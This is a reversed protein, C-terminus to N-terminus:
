TVNFFSLLYTVWCALNLPDRLDMVHFLDLLISPSIAAARKVRHNKIRALGKMLLKYEFSQHIDFEFGTYLHLLRVGNVYNKISITSKFRRSLYQAYVCVTEVSAPLYNLDFYLCFSIFSHWQTRLNKLTGPAFAAQRSKFLERHLQKHAAGSFYHTIYYIVM